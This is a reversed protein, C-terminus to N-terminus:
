QQASEARDIWYRERDIDFASRDVPYHPHKKRGYPHLARGGAAKKAQHTIDSVEFVPGRADQRSHHLNLKRPVGDKIIYPANGKKARQLNTLGEVELKWDIKQQYVKYAQGTGRESPATWQTRTFRTNAVGKAQDSGVNLSRRIFPTQNVTLDKGLRATMTVQYGTNAFKYSKYGKSSLSALKGLGGTGFGIMSSLTAGGMNGGTAGAYIMSLGPTNQWIFNLSSEFVMEDYSMTGGYNYDFSSRNWAQEQQKFFSYSPGYNLSIQDQQQFIEVFSRGTPDVHNIPDGGAYSYLDASAAHGLPDPSLFRGTGADYLRQGLCYFGTPDPTRGQWGLSAPLAEARLALRSGLLSRGSFGAHPGYGSFQQGRWRWHGDADRHALIHGAANGLVPTFAGSAADITGWLGGLGDYDGYGADLDNGYFRWWAQGDLRTGVPLFEVQPDYLEQCNSPTRGPGTLKTSLRRGLGDYVAIWLYPREGATGRSDAMGVARLRGQADWAFTQVAQYDQGDHAWSRRLPRGLPDYDTAIEEARAQPTFSREAAVINGTTANHARLEPLAHEARAQVTVPGGSPLRTWVSWDGTGAPRFTALRSEGGAAGPLWDLWLSYNGPKDALAGSVEVERTGRDLTELTVRRFADLSAPATGEASHWVEAAGQREARVRVGLSDADFGYAVTEQTAAGAAPNKYYTETALRRTQPHYTYDRVEFFNDWGGGSGDGRVAVLREIKSDATYLIGESLLPIGGVGTVQRTGIRGRLDRAQPDIFAKLTEQGGLTLTGTHCLGNDGYLYNLTATTLGPYTSQGLRGAATFTDTRLPSSGGAEGLRLQTRRGLADWYQVFHSHESQVTFLDVTSAGTGIEVKEGVLQGYGDYALSVHTAGGSAARTVTLPLDRFDYSHLVDVAAYTGGAADDATSTDRSEVRELRGRSDYLYTHTIIAEGAATAKEQLSQLKGASAGGGNGSYYQYSKYRSTAAGAGELWEDTMRGAGDYLAKWTIGGPMGRGALNGEGDYTFTYESGDPRTTKELRNRADYTHTTALGLEDLSRVANGAADYETLTFTGDKYRTLVPRGQVDTYTTVALDTSGQTGQTVTVAHHRSDYAYESFEVVGSGDKITVSSIRGLADEVTVTEVDNTKSTVAYTNANDDYLYTYTTAQRETTTEGTDPHLLGGGAPGTSSVVRDAGDYVTTFDHTTGADVYVTSKVVNGRVDTQTSEKNIVTGTGYAQGERQTVTVILQADDYEYQLHSGNPLNHQKLRGDLYYLFSESTGDPYTRSKLQGTTTYTSTTESPSGVDHLTSTHRTVHGGPEYEFTEQDSVSDIAPYTVKTRRGIADHDYTTINGRPDIMYELNGFGDYNYQVISQGLYNSQGSVAGVGSGDAMARSRWGIEAIKRGDGDYKFTMFDDPNYRPGDIWAIDGNGNYYRQERSLPTTSGANEYQKHWKVRGMADYDFRSTRGAPDILTILEGRDNHEMTSTLTVESALPAVLVSGTQTGDSMAFTRTIQGTAFGRGDYIAISESLDSSSLGTAGQVFTLGHAAASGAQVSQGYIFQTTSVLGSSPSNSDYSPTQIAYQVISTPLYAYEYFTVDASAGTELLTEYDGYSSSLAANAVPYTYFVVDYDGNADPAENIEKIKLHRDNYYAYTEIDHSASGDGLLDAGTRRIVVPNGNTDYEYEVKLQRKDTISEVSRQYDGAQLSSDDCWAYSIVHPINTNGPAFGVAYPDAIHLLRGDKHVYTTVPRGGENIFTGSDWTNPQTESIVRTVKYDEYMPDGDWGDLYEYTVALVPTLSDAGVMLEGSGDRNTGGVSTYQQYVRRSAYDDLGDVQADYDRNYINVLRRGDPKIVETLLHTSYVIDGDEIHDRLQQITTGTFDHYYEWLLSNTQAATPVGWMTWPKLYDDDITMWGDVPIGDSLDSDYRWQSRLYNYDTSGGLATNYEVQLYEVYYSKGAELKIWKSVNGLIDNPPAIKPGAPITYIPGDVITDTDSIRTPSLHEEATGLNQLYFDYDGVEESAGIYFEALEDAAFRFQYYGTTDPQIWGRVRVGFQPHPYTVYQDAGGYTATDDLYFVETADAQRAIAYEYKIESKDPRTVKVLDGHVNYEYEVRRGDHTYIEKLEGNASYNFGLFNGNSSSIRELQGYEPLTKSYVALELNERDKGADPGSDVYEYEDGYFKFTFANGFADEMRELYPRKRLILDDDGTAAEDKYIPFNQERFICRSGDAKYLTYYNEVVDHGNVTNTVTTKEIYAHFPNHISGINGGNYNDMHPNDDATPEWRDTMLPSEPDSEDVLNRFAIVSGDEDAYYILYGEYDYDEGEAPKSIAEEGALVLYPMLTFKWGHGLPSLAESISSYNRRISLPMPGPLTLDVEDVYFEGTTINVPDAVFSLDISHENYWSTNTVGINMGGRDINLTSANSLVTGWQNDGVTFNSWSSNFTLGPNNIQGLASATNAISNYSMIDFNVSAQSVYNLQQSFTSINYSNAIQIPNTVSVYSPSFSYYGTSSQFSLNWNNHNSPQFSVPQYPQSVYGGNSQGILAAASRPELIMAGMGVFAAEDVDDTLSSVHGPTIYTVALPSALFAERVSAWISEDFDKLPLATSTLVNTYNVDGEALHNSKYLAIIEHGSEEALHFLRVTSIADLERFFSEVTLHEQASGETIYIPFLTNVANDYNPRDLYLNGNGVFSNREVSMDINPVNVTDLEDMDITSSRYNPSLKSLGFAYSAMNHSKMLSKLREGFRDIREYYSMGMLYAVNALRENFAHDSWQAADEGELEWHNRAHVELMEQTTRGFNLCMAGLEGYQFPREQTFSTGKRLLPYATGGSQGATGRVYDERTVKIRYTPYTLPPEYDSAYYRAVPLRIEQEDILDNHPTGSFSAEYVAKADWGSKLDHDQASERMPALTLHLNAPLMNPQTTWYEYMNGYPSASNGYYWQLGIGHNNIHWPDGDFYPHLVPYPWVTSEYGSQHPAILIQDITFGEHYTWISFTQYGGGYPVDVLITASIPPADGHLYEIPKPYGASKWTAFSQPFVDWGPTHSTSLGVHLMRHWSYWHGGFGDLAEFTAILHHTFTNTSGDTGIGYYIGKPPVIGNKVGGGGDSWGRIWVHYLGREKFWLRYDLRSNLDLAGSNGLSRMVGSGSYGQPIETNTLVNGEDDYEQDIFGWIRSTPGDVKNDYNEAEFILIDDGTEQVKSEQSWWAYFRRNHLDCLRMDGTGFNASVYNYSGNPNIIVDGNADKEQELFEISLKNFIDDKDAQYPNIEGLTKFHTLGTAPVEYPEPFDEWSAYTNRRLTRRSGLEDPSIAPHYRELIKEIFREFLVSPTDVGDAEVLDFISQYDGSQYTGKDSRYEHDYTYYQEVWSLGNRYREPMLDYLNYGEVIEHDKIWPFLAIWRAGMGDPDVYAAVWPYNVPILRAEVPNTVDFEGMELPIGAANLAGAWQQGLMRSVESELMKMVPDSGISTESATPDTSFVYAAPVGAKRLLYVLLACQEIPSGQRELYTGLASRSVGGWNLAHEEHVNGYAGYGFADILEIENQVFAALALADSDMENVIFDDLIEHQRLEPSLDLELFGASDGTIGTVEVLEAHGAQQAAETQGSYEPPTPESAFSPTPTFTSQWAPAHTFSMAYLPYYETAPYGMPVFEGSANLFDALVGAGEIVYYYADSSCEHTLVYSYHGPNDWAGEVYEVTLALDGITFTKYLHGSVFDDWLNNGSDDEEAFLRPRLLQLVQTEAPTPAGGADVTAKDYAKVRLGYKWTHYPPDDVPLIAGMSLGIKYTQNTYVPAYEDIGGFAAIPYNNAIRGSSDADNIVETHSVPHELYYDDGAQKFTGSVVPPYLRNIWLESEDKEPTAPDNFRTLENVPHGMLNSDYPMIATHFQPTYGSGRYLRTSHGLPGLHRVRLHNLPISGGLADHRSLSLKGDSVDIEADFYRVEFGQGLADQYANAPVQFCTNELKVLWADTAITANAADGLILEVKYRGNPVELEWVDDQDSGFDIHSYFQGPWHGDSTTSDDLQPQAVKWGYHHGNGRDGYVLGQDVEYGAVLAMSEKQFNIKIDSGYAITVCLTAIICLLSAYKM